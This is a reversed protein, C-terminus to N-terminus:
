FFSCFCNVCIKSIPPTGQKATFSSELDLSILERVSAHFHSTLIRDSFSPPSYRWFKSFQTLETLFRLFQIFLLAGVGAPSDELPIVRPPGHPHKRSM